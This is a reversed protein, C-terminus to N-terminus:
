KQPSHRRQRSRRQRNMLDDVRNDSIGDGDNDIFHDRKRKPRVDGDKPKEKELRDDIGNSNEDIWGAERDTERGPEVNEKNNSKNEKEKKEPQQALLGGAGILFFILIIFLSRMIAGRNISM